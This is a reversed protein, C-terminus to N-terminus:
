GASEVQTAAEVFASDHACVSGIKIAVVGFVAGPALVWYLRELGATIVVAVGAAVIMLRLYSIRAHVRDLRAFVDTRAALRQEYLTEIDM